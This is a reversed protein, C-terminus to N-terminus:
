LYAVILQQVGHFLLRVVVQHHILRDRLLVVVLLGGDTLQAIVLEFDLEFRLLDPRFVDDQLALHHFELVLAITQLKLILLQFLVLNYFNLLRIIKLLKFTVELLM